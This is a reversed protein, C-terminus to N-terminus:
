QENELIRRFHFLYNNTLEEICKANNFDTIVIIGRDIMSNIARTPALIQYNERNTTNNRIEIMAILHPIAKQKNRGGIRNYCSSVSRAFFLKPEYLSDDPIKQTFSFSNDIYTICKNEGCNHVEFEISNDASAGYPTSMGIVGAVAAILRSTLTQRKM